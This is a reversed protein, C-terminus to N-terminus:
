EKLLEDLKEDLKKIREQEDSEKTDNETEVKEKKVPLQKKIKKAIETKKKTVKKTKVTKIEKKVPNKKTKDEEENKVPVIEIKEEVVPKKVFGKEKKMKKNKISDLDRNSKLILFRVIETTSNLTNTILSIDQPEIEIYFTYYFGTREKKIPYTFTKRGVEEEYVIKVKNEELIKKVGQTDKEDKVIFTIEYMPMKREHKNKPILFNRKEAM